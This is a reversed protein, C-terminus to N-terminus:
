AKGPINSRFFKELFNALTAEDEPSSSNFKLAFGIESAQDVVEAWFNVTQMDTLQIELAVLEKVEVKGGSLVFCGNRSLDTVTGDERSLVGQWRAPLNVRVRPSARRDKEM